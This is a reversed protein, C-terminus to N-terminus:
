SQRRKYKGETDPVDESLRRYCALVIFYFIPAM